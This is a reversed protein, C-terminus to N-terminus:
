PTVLSVDHRIQRGTGVKILEAVLGYVQEVGGPAAVRVRSRPDV